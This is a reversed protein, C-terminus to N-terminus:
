WLDPNMLWWLRWVRMFLIKNHTFLWQGFRKGQPKVERYKHTALEIMPTCFPHDDLYIRLQSLRTGLGKNRLAPNLRPM